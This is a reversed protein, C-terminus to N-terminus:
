STGLHCLRFYVFRGETPSPDHAMKVERRARKQGHAFNPFELQNGADADFAVSVLQAVFGTKVGM